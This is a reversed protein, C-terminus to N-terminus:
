LGIVLYLQLVSNKANSFSYPQGFVQRERGIEKLGYNYRLGVGVNKADIGFGGAIGYDLTEFNDRNIEREFDYIGNNAKNKVTVGALYSIYPGAHVNFNKSLNVVAMVPLEIYHLNYSVKGKAFFNDYSVQSGKQSYILEPQISFMPAIPAKVFFGLQFGLKSNESNVDNVYLNSLNVGGKIGFTSSFISKSTKPSQAHTLGSVKFLLLLMILKQLMKMKMKIM